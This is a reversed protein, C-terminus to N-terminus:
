STAAATGSGERAHDVAADVRHGVTRAHADHAEAPDDVRQEDRRRRRDVRLGGLGAEVEVDAVDAVLRGVRRDPWANAGSTSLCNASSVGIQSCLAWRTRGASASLSPGNM